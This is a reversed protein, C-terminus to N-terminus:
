NKFKIVYKSIISIKDGSKLEISEKGKDFYMKNGNIVINSEEPLDFEYKGEKLDEGVDFNGSPLYGLKNYDINDKFIIGNMNELIVTSTKDKSFKIRHYFPFDEADVSEYKVNSKTDDYSINGKGHVQIIYNGEDLKLNQLTTSPNLSFEEVKIENSSEKKFNIIYEKQMKMEKRLRIIDSEFTLEVNPYEKKYETYTVLIKEFKDKEDDSLETYSKKLIATENSNLSFQTKSNKIEHNLKDVTKSGSTRCSVLLFSCIIIIYFFKNKM